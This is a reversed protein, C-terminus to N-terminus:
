AAHTLRAAFRDVLYNAAVACAGPQAVRGKLEQLAGVSAQRASPNNLWKLVHGAPRDSEDKLTLYEPFVEREALLNVL